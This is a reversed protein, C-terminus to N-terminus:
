RGNPYGEVAVKPSLEAPEGYLAENIDNQDLDFVFISYGIRAIPVRHRLYACLRGFRVREYERITSTMPSDGNNKALQAAAALILRSPRHQQVDALLQRYRAEFPVAWRGIELAYVSQLTTVSICYIGTTLPGSTTEWALPTGTIQKADIGYWRPDATGFYSLYLQKGDVVSHNDDLWRKLAPLDQGWDLSSDVLHEYGHHPGGVTENFYALYDPRIALSEVIQWILLLAIAGGTIFARKGRCLITAGGCIVFLAPYIPLIHRHGINLYSTMAAASFITALMWLPSLRLLDSRITPWIDGCTRRNWRAIAAVAAMLTLFLIPLPTKYLFARPFFSRFGVVSWQNDLFAPRDDKHRHVYALGFLYAEPLLHHTRAFGIVSEFPGGDESLHNTRWIDGDSPKDTWASYRFSFSLWIAFFVTIAVGFGSVAIALAKNWRKTLSNRFAGFQIKIEDRSYIRLISLGAFIPLAIVASFKTLSLGSFSLAAIATTKFSINGFLRWASWIAALFFFAVAVDSTVLASHALMNPDFATLTEALLGGFVGFLQRSCHFILLCLAAGFVSMMTRAQAIMRDPDNSVEYFFQHATKGEDAKQWARDTTPIFNVRSILLPLAAWRAPLNGNEPDLRYDNKLWYSYGAVLHQPEDFTPSKTNVATVAMFAHVVAILIAILFIFRENARFGAAAANSVSVKPPNWLSAPASKSLEM